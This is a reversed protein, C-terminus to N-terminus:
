SFAKAKQLNGMVVIYNKITNQHDDYSNEHPVDCPAVLVLELRVDIGESVICVAGHSVFTLRDTQQEANMSILTHIDRRIM